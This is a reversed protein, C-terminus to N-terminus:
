PSPEPAKRGVVRSIIQGIWAAKMKHLVICYLLFIVSELLLVLLLQFIGSLSPWLALIQRAFLAAGLALINLGVCPFLLLNQSIIWNSRYLYRLTIAGLVVLGTTAGIAIGLTGLPSWGLLVSVGITVFLAVLLNATNVAREEVADLISRLLVYALYPTVAALMIRMIPVAERYQPGLWVVVLLDTWILLQLTLFLGLHLTLAVVDGIRSRLFDARGSSALQTAKPLIVLGFAVVSAGCLSFVSQGIALYGADKLSGFYPALLPGCAFIGSLLWGGWARAGGYFFMKRILPSLNLPRDLQPLGRCIQVMLPFAALLFLAGMAALVVDVRGQPALLWAVVVPGIGTSAVQWLNAKSMQGSGRYFGFLVMYFANGLLMFLLAMVVSARGADRFLLSSIVGRLPWCLLFLVAYALLSLMLGVILIEYREKKDETAAVYRTVAQSMALTSFPFLMTFIRRAISYIGFNQPGLGHALFSSVFILGAVTSVATLSTLFVDIM